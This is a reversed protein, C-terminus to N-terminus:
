SMLSIIIAVTFLAHVGVAINTRRSVAIVNGPLFIVHVLSVIFTVIVAIELHKFISDIILASILVTPYAIKFHMVRYGDPRDEPLHHIYRIASALLGTSIAVIYSEFTVPVNLAIETGLIPFPGFSFFTVIEGIGRAGLKIPPVIYLLSLFVALLGLALLLLNRTLYVVLLGTVVSISVMVYFAIRLYFPEIDLKEIFYSGLPFVTDDNRLPRSNKHDYYDMGLNMGAQMSITVILLLIILYSREFHTFAWGILVPSISTFYIPAKLGKVFDLLKM